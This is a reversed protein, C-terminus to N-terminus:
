QNKQQLKEAAAINDDLAASVQSGTTQLAGLRNGSTVSFNTLAAESGSLGGTLAGSFDQLGDRAQQFLKQTTSFADSAGKAASDVDDLSAIADQLM